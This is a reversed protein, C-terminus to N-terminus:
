FAFMHHYHLPKEQIQSFSALTFFYRHNNSGSMQKERKSARGLVPKGALKLM